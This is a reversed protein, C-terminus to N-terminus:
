SRGKKVHSLAINEIRIRHFLLVLNLISFIIAIKWAGFALPLLAIEVCVLLYNPHKCFRYPGKKVLPSNQLVIIRTTWRRGLSIMIWARFVQLGVYAFFCPWNIFDVGYVGVWIILSLLWTSHLVPFLFYHRAGFEQAGESILKRTNQRAFVMEALRQM